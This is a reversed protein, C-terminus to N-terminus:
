SAAVTVIPRTVASRGGETSRRARAMAAALPSGCGTHTSSARVAIPSPGGRERLGGRALSGHVEM